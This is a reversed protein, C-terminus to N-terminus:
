LRDGEYPSSLPDNGRNNVYLFITQLIGDTNTLAEYDSFHLVTLGQQKLYEDRLIDKQRGEETYHQSGDLEIVLKAEISLFDLIYPGFAAQRRFKAGIQKRRIESWLKREADTMDRRLKRALPINHNPYKLFYKGVIKEIRLQPSSYPTM